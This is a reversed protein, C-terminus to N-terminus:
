IGVWRDGKESDIGRDAKIRWGVSYWIPRKEFVVKLGFVRIRYHKKGGFDMCMYSKRSKEERKL